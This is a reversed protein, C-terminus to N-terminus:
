LIGLLYFFFITILNFIETKAIFDDFTPHETSHVTHRGFRNTFVNDSLVTFVNDSLINRSYGNTESLLYAHMPKSPSLLYIASIGLLGINSDFCHYAPKWFWIQPLPPYLPLPRTKDEGRIETSIKSSKINSSSAKVYDWSLGEYKMDPFEAGVKIM